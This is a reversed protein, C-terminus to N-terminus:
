PHTPHRTPLSADPARPRCRDSLAPSCPGFAGGGRPL